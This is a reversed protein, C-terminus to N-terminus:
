HTAAVAGAFRDLELLGIDRNDEGISMTAYLWRGDRSATMAMAPMGRRERDLCGSAPKSAPGIWHWATGCRSTAEMALVKGGLFARQGMWYVVPESGDLLTPAALDLGARWLGPTDVRAFYIQGTASDFRADGVDGLQALVRDPAGADLIRLSWKGSGLDVLAMLRGGPLYQAMYPIGDLAIPASRGSAVDVEYARPGPEADTGVPDAVVLLRRGDPSWQPPHMATPVLGDIMRLRDPKEPEGIWLRMERSRDSYFALVSGDPSPAPLVDTGTSPFLPQPRAAERLPLPYRYMTTRADDVAFVMNGGRLAVDISSAPIRGLTESHGNVLDLRVLRPAGNGLGLLLSRGDPAWDWGRIRPRMRTVRTAPGGQASMVWIDSRTLNRRFGLRKGDPSFRPDFDVNGPAIPYSMPEWRGSDLRLISLPAPEGSSRARIGAVIGSGDPLWEYRGGSMRDCHGVIREMGGTAPLLRLECSGEADLRAFMMQRGDPSWRPLLDSFGPPPTTLRRPPAPQASQVFIASAQDPAGTTMAYAVSAGDPSLSPDLELGPRSTLLTYAVDGGITALAPGPEPVRAPSDPWGALSWGLTGLLALGVVATGLMPWRVRVPAPLAIAPPSASAPAPGSTRVPAPAKPLWEVAALLRYGSKPITEVYGPADVEGGLAKRLAAVAQTVVDMTPMTGAWVSALLTERSVVRGAHEALVLLVAISKLTVRTTSGEASTVERLPVDVV